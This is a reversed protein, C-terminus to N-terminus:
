VKWGDARGFLESYNPEELRYRGPLFHLLWRVLVQLHRKREEAGHDAMVGRSRLWEAMEGFYRPQAVFADFAAIEPLALLQKAVHLRFAAEDLGDPLNLTALDDLVTVRTDPDGFTLVSLYGSYVREPNRFRPFPTPPQRAPEGPLEVRPAVPFSPVIKVAAEFRDRIAQTAVIAERELQTLFAFVRNPPPKLVAVAEANPKPAYGLAADTVNASGVVAVRDDVLLVKAHLRPHLLLRSRARTEIFDLVGLDSVGAAIDGTEWKTVVTLEVGSALGGLVRELARLKIFPAVLTLRSTARSVKAAVADGIGDTLFLPEDSMPLKSSIAPL